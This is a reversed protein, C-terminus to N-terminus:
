RVIKKLNNKIRRIYLLPNVYNFKSRAKMRQHQFPHELNHKTADWKRKPNYRNLRWRATQRFNAAEAVRADARRLHDM